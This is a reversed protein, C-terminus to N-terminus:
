CQCEIRKEKKKKQLVFTPNKQTASKRKINYANEWIM